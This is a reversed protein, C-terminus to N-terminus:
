NTDVRTLRFYGRPNHGSNNCVGPIFLSSYCTEKRTPFIFTIWHINWFVLDVQLIDLLVDVFSSLLCTGSFIAVIVLSRSLAVESMHTRSQASLTSHHIDLFSSITVEVIPSWPLFFLTLQNVYFYALFQNTWLKLSPTAFM